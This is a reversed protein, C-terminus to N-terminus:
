LYADKRYGMQEKLMREECYQILQQKSMRPQLPRLERYYVLIENQKYYDNLEPFDDLKVWFLVSRIRLFEEYDEQTEVLLFDPDPRQEIRTITGRLGELYYETLRDVPKLQVKNDISFYPRSRHTKGQM